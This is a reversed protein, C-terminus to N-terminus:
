SPIFKSAPTSKKCKQKEIEECGKISYELLKAAKNYLNKKQYLRGLLMKFILEYVLKERAGQNKIDGHM